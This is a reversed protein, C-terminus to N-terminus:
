CFVGHFLDREGKGSGLIPQAVLDDQLQRQRRAKEYEAEHGYVAGALFSAAVAGFFCLTATPDVAPSKQIGSIIDASLCVLWFIVGTALLSQSFSLSFM